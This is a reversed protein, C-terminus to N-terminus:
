EYLAVASVVILLTVLGGFSAMFGLEADNRKLAGYLFMCTIVLCVVGLACMAYFRM